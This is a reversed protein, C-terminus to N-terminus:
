ADMEEADVPRGFKLANPLDIVDKWVSHIERGYALLTLFGKLYMIM